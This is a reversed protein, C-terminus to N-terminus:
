RVAVMRGQLVIPEASTYAQRAEEAIRSTRLVGHDSWLLESTTFGKTWKKLQWLNKLGSTHSPARDWMIVKDLFELVAEVSIGPEQFEDPSSGNAESLPIEPDSTREQTRLKERKRLGEVAFTFNLIKRRQDEWTPTRLQGGEGELCTAMVLPRRFTPQSDKILIWPRSSLNIRIDSNSDILDLQRLSSEDGTVSALYQVKERKSKTAPNQVVKLLLSDLPVNPSRPDLEYM